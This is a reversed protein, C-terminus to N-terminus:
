LVACTSSYPAYGCRYGTCTAVRVIEIPVQVIVVVVAVILMISLPAAPGPSEHGVVAPAPPAVEAPSDRVRASWQRPLVRSTSPTVYGPSRRHWPPPAHRPRPQHSPLAPEDVAASVPACSPCPTGGGPRRSPYATISPSSTALRVREIVSADYSM